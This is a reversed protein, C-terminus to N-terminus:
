ATDGKIATALRFAEQREGATRRWPDTAVALFAESLATKLAAPTYHRVLADIADRDQPTVDPRPKTAM